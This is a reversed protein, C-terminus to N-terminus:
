GVGKRADSLFRSFLYLLQIAVVLKISFGLLLYATASISVLILRLLWIAIFEKDM